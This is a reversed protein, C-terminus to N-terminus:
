FKFELFNVIKFKVVIVKLCNTKFMNLRKWSVLNLENEVLKGNLPLGPQQNKSAFHKFFM